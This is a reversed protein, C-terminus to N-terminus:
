FDRPSQVRGTDDPTDTDSMGTSCVSADGDDSPVYTKQSKTGQPSWSRSRERNIKRKLGKGAVTTFGDNEEDGNKGQTKQQETMPMSEECRNETQTPATEWELNNSESGREM